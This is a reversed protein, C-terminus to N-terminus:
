PGQIYYVRGSIQATGSQNLVFAEASGTTFWPEADFDLVVSGGAALTIPGTLATGAHKFIITTAASAVFFLKYVKVSQSAAGAVLTNDGTASFDISAETLQSVLAPSFRTNAGRM